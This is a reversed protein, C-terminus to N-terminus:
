KATCTYILAGATALSKRQCLPQAECSKEDTFKACNIISRIGPPVMKGENDVGKSTLSDPLITRASSFPSHLLEILLRSEPELGRATHKGDL